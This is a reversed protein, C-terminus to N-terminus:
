EITKMTVDARQGGDHLLPADAGEKDLDPALPPVPAVHFDAAHAMAAANAVQAPAAYAPAAHAPAVYAPAAYAPAAHANAAHALTGHTTAAYANRPLPSAVQAVLAFYWNTLV